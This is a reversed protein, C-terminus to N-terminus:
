KLKAAELEAKFHARLKEADLDLLTGGTEFHQSFVRGLAITVASALAPVLVAGAITGIFPISKVLSGGGAAALVTPLSGGLISSVILRTREKSSEYGYIEAIDRIMAYQASSISAIDIVPVPIFGLGGSVAAYRKILKSVRANRQEAATLVVDAGTESKEIQAQATM